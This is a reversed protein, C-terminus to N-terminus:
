STSNRDGDLTTTPSPHFAELNTRLHGTVRRLLTITCITLCQGRHDLYLDQYVQHESSGSSELDTALQLVHFRSFCDHYRVCSKLNKNGPLIPHPHALAFPERYM